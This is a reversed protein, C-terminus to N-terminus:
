WHSHVPKIKMLSTKISHDPVWTNWDMGHDHNNEMAGHNKYFGNLNANDCDHYWWGGGHMEACNMSHNEDKDHDYTSFLAGQHSEGMADGANGHYGSYHIAYNDAESGLQFHDYRAMAVDDNWDTMEIALEYDGQDTLAHIHDNGLYFSGFLDGFGEKYQDWGRTFNM